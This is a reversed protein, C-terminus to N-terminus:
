HLALLIANHMERLDQKFSVSMSCSQGFFFSSLLLKVFYYEPMALRSILRFLIFNIATQQLGGVMCLLTDPYVTCYNM